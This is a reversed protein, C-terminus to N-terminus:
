AGRLLAATHTAMSPTAALQARLRALADPDDVDELVPLFTVRRSEFECRRLTDALTYRTSWRVGSFLDPLQPGALGMLYYGGDAAPGLVVQARATTLAAFADSVIASTLTPVDSGLLVVERAGRRFLERFVGRERDGLSEGRQTFVHAPHVGLDMWAHEAGAATVALRVHAGSGRAAALVDALCARQLAERQHPEPLVPSLRTKIEDPQHHGPDRPSRTMVAVVKM